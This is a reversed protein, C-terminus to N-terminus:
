LFTAWRILSQEHIEFYIIWKTPNERFTSNYGWDRYRFVLESNKNKMEKELFSRNEELLIPFDTWIKLKNPHTYRSIGQM